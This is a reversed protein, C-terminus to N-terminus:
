ESDEHTEAEAFYRRMLSDTEDIRRYVDNLTADIRGVNGDIGMMRQTHRNISLRNDVIRDNLENIKDILACCFIISTVSLVGLVAILVTLANNTM